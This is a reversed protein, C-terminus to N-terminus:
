TFRRISLLLSLLTVTCCCRNLLPAVVSRYRHSQTTVAPAVAASRSHRSIPAIFTHSRLSLLILLLPTVTSCYRQSMLAVVSCCRRLPLPVIATRCRLSLPDVVSRCHRLSLPRYRHSLPAVASRCCISLTAIDTRCRLLLPKVTSNHHALHIPSSVM